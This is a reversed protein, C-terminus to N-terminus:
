KKLGHQQNQESETWTLTNLHEVIVGDLVQGQQKVTRVAPVNQPSQPPRQADWRLDGSTKLAKLVEKLVQAGGGVCQQGLQGLSSCEQRIRFNNSPYVSSHHVLSWKSGLSTNGHSGVTIYYKQCVKRSSVTVLHIM